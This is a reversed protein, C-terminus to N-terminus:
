MNSCSLTSGITCFTYIIVESKYQSQYQTVRQLLDYTIVVVSCKFLMDNCSISEVLKGLVAVLAMICLALTQYGYPWPRFNIIALSLNSDCINFNGQGFKGNEAGNESLTFQNSHFKTCM